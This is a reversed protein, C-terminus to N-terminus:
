EADDDAEEAADDGEVAADGEAADDGEVAADDNKEVVAADDGKADEM